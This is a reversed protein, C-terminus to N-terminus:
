NTDPEDKGDERPKEYWKSFRYNNEPSPNERVEAILREIQIEGRLLSDLDVFILFLDWLREKCDCVDFILLYNPLHLNKINPVGFIDIWGDREWNVNIFLQNIAYRIEDRNETEEPLVQVSLKGLRELAWEPWNQKDSTNIM